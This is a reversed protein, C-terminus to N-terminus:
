IILKKWGSLSSALMGVTNTALKPLFRDKLETSGYKIIATNVLTNHVDVLVSVSPDVRALEEIGVIAATFNMGAGGYKEPIEIGMLGQEFLQEVVAPDMKEEEDMERVKPGIVDTAFKSVAEAMSAEIESLHTIPTPPIDTIDIAESRRPHTTSLTRARSGNNTFQWAPITPM